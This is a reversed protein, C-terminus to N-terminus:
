QLKKDNNNTNQLCPHPDNGEKEVHAAKCFLSPFFFFSLRFPTHALLCYDESWQPRSSPIQPVVMHRARTAKQCWKVSGDEISDETEAEGCLCLFSSVSSVFVERFFTVISSPFDFRVLLYATSPCVCLSVCMVYFKVESKFSSYRRIYSDICRM